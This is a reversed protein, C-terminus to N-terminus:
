YGIVLMAADRVHANTKSDQGTLSNFYSAKVKTKNNRPAVMEFPIKHETLFDEWIVADRKVYGAGERRGREAAEDKQKPIFKRLRADEVRVFLDNPGHNHLHLDQVYELAQHIKMSKIYTFQKKVADWLAVGTNVGTDIGIYYKYKVPKQM